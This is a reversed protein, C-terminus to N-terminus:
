TIAQTIAQRPAQRAKPPEAACEDACHRNWRKKPCYFRSNGLLIPLVPWRGALNECRNRVGSLSRIPRLSVCKVRCAATISSFDRRLPRFWHPMFRATTPM